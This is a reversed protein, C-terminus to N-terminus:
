SQSLHIKPGGIGITNDGVRDTDNTSDIVLEGAFNFLDIGPTKLKKQSLLNNRNNRRKTEISFPPGKSDIGIQDREFHSRRQMRGFENKKGGVFAQHKVSLSEPLEDRGFYFFDQFLM